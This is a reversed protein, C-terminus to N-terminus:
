HNFSHLLYSYCLCIIFVYCASVQHKNLSPSYGRLYLAAGKNAWGAGNDLGCLCSIAKRGALIQGKEKCKRLIQTIIDFYLFVPKSQKERYRNAWPKRQMSSLKFTSNFWIVTHLNSDTNLLPLAWKVSNRSSQETEELARRGRKRLHLSLRRGELRNIPTKGSM